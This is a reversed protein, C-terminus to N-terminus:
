QLHLITGAGGVVYVDGSGSGWVSFLPPAVGGREVSWVGSGDSHLIDGTTEFDGGTVVYVDNPGSAWVGVPIASLQPVSEQTWDDNGTSHIVLSNEGVVYVDHASVPWVAPIQDSFRAAGADTAAQLSWHGDGSSHYIRGFGGLIYVDNASSGRVRGIGVKTLPLPEITSSGDAHLHLLVDGASNAGAVYGEGSGYLWVSSAFQVSSPTVDTWTGNGTSRFLGGPAEGGDPACGPDTCASMAGAYIENPGSGYVDVFNALTGSAEPQWVGDGNSHLIVGGLGVVYIDNPGSGWVGYLTNTVPTSEKVWRRKVAQDAFDAMGLDTSSSPSSNCAFLFVCWGLRSAM